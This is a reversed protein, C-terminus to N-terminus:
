ALVRRAAASDRDMQEVLAEVTDFKLEERIFDVFTVEVIKDYLDGAFDFVFVELLPAGNDFTPRRGFSAVGPLTEGEVTLRVAYIGHRLRCEDALRLNATPYGISRGIKQGHLVTGVVFWEHGLLANAAKIEGAELKERILTSSIEVGGAQQEPVIEVMFGFRQGAEALFQPTGARNAGFHFDFGVVAGSIALRRVLIEDVFAEATKAALGADFTLTILGELGQREALRAKANRDTLPFLALDPRFYVRPHPEFSLLATPRRLRQGMAVARDIVAAHGRHLGDFNGIAIVPELLSAPLALPNELSLFM